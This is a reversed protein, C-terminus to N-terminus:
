KAEQKVYDFFADVDIARSFYFGQIYDAGSSVATDFQEKTEVGEQIINSNLTKVFSMVGKLKEENEGNEVFDYLISKDIKINDFKYKIMRALNSYGTGFDDLSLTYGLEKFRILAAKVEERDLAGSSETIELNVKSAPVNYKKRLAEFNDVLDSFMFQFPSLNLEVYEINSNNIRADTLFKLTEELVFYGIDKILGCAEAIPIYIEPSVNSLPGEKVRLLAEACTVKKEKTSWIPQFMVKLQHEDIAKKLAEEYLKTKKIDAVEEKSIIYSGTKNQQYNCVMIDELEVFNSIDEPVKLIMALADFHINVTDILWNDKFREMVKSIFKNAIDKDKQDKFIVAYEDRRYTYVEPVRAENVLFSSLERFLANTTRVAFGRAVEDLKVLKIIVLDYNQKTVILRRNMESFAVRNFLNTVPDIHGSKEEIVIMLTLCALGEFFFEVVLQSRVAQIILGFFALILFVLVAIADVKTIAKRNKFFFFIGMILYFVGLGYLLYVLSGRHYVLDESMYFAWSTVPNTFVLLASVIYPIFFITGLVPNKNLNVGSVSMIYLCFSLSLSAHFFFYLVHFAYMLPLLQEKALLELYAGSVSSICCIMCNVLMTLFLFHQNTLKAKIGKPPIYQRHKAILCYLFSFLALAFAAIEFSVKDIM